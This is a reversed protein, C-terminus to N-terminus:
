TGWFDWNDCSLARMFHQHLECCYCCYWLGCSVNLPWIFMYLYYLIYLNSHCMDGQNEGGYKPASWDGNPPPISVICAWVEVFGFTVVMFKWYFICTPLGKCCLSGLGGFLGITFSRIQPLAMPQWFFIHNSFPPYNEEEKVGIKWKPNRYGKAVFITKM